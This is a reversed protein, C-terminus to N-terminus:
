EPFDNREVVPPPNELGLLLKIGKIEGRIEATKIPDLDGDNRLRLSELRSQYHKKIKKWM